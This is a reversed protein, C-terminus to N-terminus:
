GCVSQFSESRRHTRWGIELAIDLVKEGPEFDSGFFCRTGSFQAPLGLDQFPVSAIMCFAPDERVYSRPGVHREIESLQCQVFLTLCTCGLEPQPLPANLSSLRVLM